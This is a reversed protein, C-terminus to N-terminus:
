LGREETEWFILGKKFERKPEDDEVVILGDEGRVFLGVEGFCFQSPIDAVQAWFCRDSVERLNLWVRSRRGVQDQATITQM